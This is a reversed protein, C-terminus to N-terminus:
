PTTATPARSRWARSRTSAGPTGDAFRIEELRYASTGDNSFYSSVTIKDTSDKLSLILNTGSRAIVIDNPVIDEAFVIADVKNTSTDYNNVTDQGWGRGFCYTDSGAGGNLSDNGAGGELIDDGAGGNLTDNGEGGLLLDDGADGNLTDNGTGGILTDDGNGGYLRDNGEGGDLLDNGSEGYLSDDGLGGSLHDDTAYGTLTDNGDTSQIAM